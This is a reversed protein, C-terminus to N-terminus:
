HPPASAEPGGPKARHRVHAGAGARLDRGPGRRPARVVLEAVASLALRAASGRGRGRRRGRRRDGAADGPAQGRDGHREHGRRVPLRTAELWARPRPLPGIPCCRRRWQRRQCRGGARGIRHRLHDRPARRPLQPRVGSLCCPHRLRHHQRHLLGYRLRDGSLCACRGGALKRDHQAHRRRSIQDRGLLRRELLGRVSQQRRRPGRELWCARHVHQPAPSHDAAHLM